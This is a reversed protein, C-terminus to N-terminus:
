DVKTLQSLNLKVQQAMEPVNKELSKNVIEVM